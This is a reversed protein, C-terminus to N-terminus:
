FNRAGVEARQEVRHVDSAHFGHRLVPAPLHREDQGEEVLECPGLAADLM